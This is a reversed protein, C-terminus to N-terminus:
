RPDRGPLTCIYQCVYISNSSIFLLPPFSIPLPSSVIHLHHCRRVCSTRRSGPKPQPASARRAGARRLSRPPLLSLTPPCLDEKTM